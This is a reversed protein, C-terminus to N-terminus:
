LLGMKRKWEEYFAPNGWVLQYQKDLFVQVSHGTAVLAGDSADRIEYDFIIKAADTDRFTIEVRARCGYVLPRKYNFKLEVLPAYYGHGFIDLYGLGYEAGFAERADEFYLAYSGHWVINMSDVENFRVDVEKSVKLTISM